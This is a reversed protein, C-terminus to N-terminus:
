LQSSLFMFRDVLRYFDIATSIKTVNPWITIINSYQILTISIKTSLFKPHAYLHYVSYLQKGCTKERQMFGTKQDSLLEEPPIWFKLLLGLEKRPSYASRPPRPSQGCRPGHATGRTVPTPPPHRLGRFIFAKLRRVVLLYASKGREQQNKIFSSRAM